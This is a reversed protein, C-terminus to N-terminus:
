AGIKIFYALVGFPLFLWLATGTVAFVFDFWYIFEERKNRPYLEMEVIDRHSLFFGRHTPLESKLGNGVLFMAMLFFFLWMALGSLSSFDQFIRAAIPTKEIVGRWNSSLTPLLVIVFGILAFIVQLSTIWRSLWKATVVHFRQRALVAPDAPETSEPIGHIKRLRYKSLAM